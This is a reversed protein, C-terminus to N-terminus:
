NFYEDKYMRKFIVIDPANRIHCPLGNWLITGQYKLSNRFIEYNPQPIQLDGNASSRTPVDHTDRTLVFTDILRKPAIENVIKYMLMATFYDRRTDITQWGLENMLDAGRVNIYDMNGCVIRAARHQLRVVLDKYINSCYGWVSIAYDLKPQIITMYLYNLASKDICKRLRNLLGLRRAVDKCLKLIHINWKLSRDVHIGLYPTDSVQNLNHGNITVNFSTPEDALRNLSSESASLMWMSKDYNVPLNNNLYWRNAEQISNQFVPIMEDPSKGTTYVCNDDAFMNSSSSRINQPLDNIFIIFLLPGLASGQPVGTSVNQYSSAKGNCSVFQKRMHLYNTVWQLSMNKFGYYELKQLLIKHNISDFCKMVDFFCAMVYEGENFADYWDDILRHLSTVTSHGKLFAFQDVSILDHDILYKMIQKAVERELIMAISAIVSIPRYNSEEYKSGKGKYIPTVRAIKWDCPIVGTQLSLNIIYCLSATIFEASAQLLRTDMQLVDLHSDASLGRLHKLVCSPEVPAFEFKYLCAPNNWILEGPDPLTNLINTGVTSFFLNLNENSLQTPISNENKKSGVVRRLKKWVAKPNNNLQPKIDAFYQKKSQTTLSTVLNRLHRYENWRIDDSVSERAKKHAFDREYMIKVIDTTIWPNQRNKVRTTKLPAHVNCIETFSQKWLTWASEAYKKEGNQIEHFAPCQSMDYLFKEQDFDKYSRYQITRHTNCVNIDKICTYVLYHDSLAFKFVRQQSHAHVNSTLIVDLLTSTTKAVRTNETILQSLGFLNEMYHIPNSSLSENLQYDYNLDGLIVVEKDESMAREVIDLISNYYSVKASPPRYICCILYPKKSRKTTEIEIWVNEINIAAKGMDPRPKYKIGDKIYMMVGGGERNRDYREIVYGPINIESDTISDDLFSESACFIDINSSTVILRIEDIKNYLSRTNLHCITLGKDAQVQSSFTKHVSQCSRCKSYSAHKCKRICTNVSAQESETNCGSIDVSHIRPVNNQDPVSNLRIESQPTCGKHLSQEPTTQSGDNTFPMIADYHEGRKLVLFTEMASNADRPCEMRKVYTDARKEIILINLNLAHAAINPVMDGLATNYIGHNIYNLMYSDFLPRQAHTFFDIYHDKNETYETELIDLLFDNSISMSHQYLLSKCCAHIFCLGDSPVTQVM